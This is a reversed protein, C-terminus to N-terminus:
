AEPRAAPVIRLIEVAGTARLVREVQGVPEVVDLRGGAEEARRHARLLLAIGTSDIFDLDPLEVVVQAGPAECM